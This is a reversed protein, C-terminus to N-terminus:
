MTVDMGVIFQYDGEKLCMSEKHLSIDDGAGQFTISVINGDANNTRQIPWKTEDPFNDFVITIEISYCKATPYSSV